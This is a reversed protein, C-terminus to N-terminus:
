ARIKEVAQSLSVSEQIGSEMHKLSVTGTELDDPGVVIVWPIGAQDAQKFQKGIKGVRDLVLQTPIGAQRLASAARIAHSRLADSYVTVLVKAASRVDPFLGLEEMVVVLRDLGLSLGVAPVDRKSFIGVLGDYRGGGSISGIKPETVEAEFVPGTYYGLGRALTPDVLVRDLVVGMESAAELLTRIEGIAESAAEGLLAELHDLAGPGRVSFLSWLTEVAEASVGREILEASVGDVGIKDLKDVAMLVSTEMDALGAHAVCARLIGRHNVRITFATFGLAVLSDHLVAVCEADALMSTCGLTDVDCQVFERYRGRQPRDARWVPQIQYRKFPMRLAPNMAIVRALPVTLDYRLAQDVEGRKGGEGRKLIKFILKEGEDGYKGMLTEIREFAPTELPEFGYREFVERLIGIVYLRQNMKEPLHDRTGKALHVSM